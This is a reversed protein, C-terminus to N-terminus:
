AKEPNEESSTEGESVELESVELESEEPESDELGAVGVQFIEVVPEEAVVVAAPTEVSPTAEEAPDESALEAAVVDAAVSEEAVSEEAVVDAAVLDEVAASDELGEAEVLIQQDREDLERNELTYIVGKLQAIVADVQEPRYGRIVTDFHIDDVNGAAILDFNIAKQNRTDELQPMAEGRGFVKSFLFALGTTAIALAFLILIWSFM